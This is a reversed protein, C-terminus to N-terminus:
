NGNRDTKDGSIYQHIYQGVVVSPTTRQEQVMQKFKFLDAGDITLTTKVKTTRSM